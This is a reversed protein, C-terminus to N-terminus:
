PPWNVGTLKDKNAKPQPGDKKTAKAAAPKTAKKTTSKKTAM